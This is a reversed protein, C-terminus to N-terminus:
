EEGLSDIALPNPRKRAVMPSHVSLPPLVEKTSDIQVDVLNKLPPLTFEIPQQHLQNPARNNSQQFLQQIASQNSGYLADNKAPIAAFTTTTITAPKFPQQMNTALHYAAAIQTHKIKTATPIVIPIHSKKSKPVTITAPLPRTEPQLIMTEDEEDGDQQADNEDDDDQEQKKKKKATTGNGMVASPNNKLDHIQNELAEIQMAFPSKKSNAQEHKEKFQEDKLELVRM